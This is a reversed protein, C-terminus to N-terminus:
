GFHKELPLVLVGIAARIGASVLLMFFAVGAIIWAYHLRSSTQTPM